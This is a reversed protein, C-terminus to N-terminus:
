SRTLDHIFQGRYIRRLIVMLKMFIDCRLGLYVIFIPFHFVFAFVFGIPIGILWMCIFDCWFMFKTDGSGRLIGVIGMNEIGMGLLLIAIAYLITNTTQKTALSITPYLMFLPYRILLLVGSAFIGVFISLVMLRKALDIVQKSTQTSVSKGVLISAARSIAMITILSFQQGISAISVPTVYASNLNGIIALQTATALSWVLDDMVVPIGVKLFKPLLHLDLHGIDQWGYRIDKEHFMAYVFAFALQFFRAICTAIAAGVIGYAAFGFHGYILSYNFFFNIGFAITSVVAAIRVNEKASMSTWYWSSLGGMVYSFVVVRLYQGGYAIMQPDKSFIGIIQDTFLLCGAMFLMAIGIIGYLMLTMTKKIGNLDQKGWYQSILIAGASTMGYLSVSYIFYPQGAITVAGIADSGLQGVMVNDLMQVCFNILEQVMMPLMLIWLQRYFNKSKM